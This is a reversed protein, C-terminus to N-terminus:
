RLDRRLAAFLRETYERVGDDRGVSEGDARRFLRAWEGHSTMPLRLWLFLFEM